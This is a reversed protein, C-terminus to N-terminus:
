RLGPHRAVYEDVLTEIARRNEDSLNRFSVGFGPPLSHVPHQQRPNVWAVVGEIELERETDPMRVRCRVAQGLHPMQDFSVYAGLVNINVVYASAGAAGEFDLICRSVFPVRVTGRPQRKEQPAM